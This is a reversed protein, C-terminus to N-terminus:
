LCISFLMAQCRCGGFDREKEPCSRCPEKMWSDGRYLNFSESEHWIWSLDHDRVGPFNLDPLSRAQQCPLVVGDPAITLHISGWGNMCAKPRGEYYDPIVFFITM